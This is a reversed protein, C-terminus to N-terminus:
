CSNQLLKFHCKNGSVVNVEKTICTVVRLVYIILMNLRFLFCDRKQAKEFKHVMKIMNPYKSTM